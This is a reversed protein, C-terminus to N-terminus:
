RWHEAVWATPRVHKYFRKHWPAPWSGDRAEIPKPHGMFCVIRANTPLSASKIFNLPWRPLVNYKFSLCWDAPWFVIGPVRRSVFIQENSYARVVGTPDAQLTEFVESHDGARFRFV